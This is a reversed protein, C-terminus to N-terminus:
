AKIVKKDTRAKKKAMLANMDRTVQWMCNHLPKKFEANGDDVFLDDVAKLLRMAEIHLDIEDMEKM